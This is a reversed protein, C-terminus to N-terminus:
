PAGTLTCSGSLNDGGATVVRLATIANTDGVWAGTGTVSGYNAGSKFYSGAVRMVKNNPAAPALNGIDVSFSGPNGNTDDWSDSGIQLSTLTASSLVVPTGSSVILEQVDYHAGTEWVFSGGVGEGVQIGVTEVSHPNIDHCALRWSHYSATDLGSAPAFVLSSAPASIPNSVTSIFGADSTTNPSVINLAQTAGTFDNSRLTAVGTYGVQEGYGYKTTGSGTDYTKNGTVTTNKSAFAGDLLLSIGAQDLIGGDGSSGNQGINSATNGIIFNNNGFNGIGTGGINFAINGSITTFSAGNEIGGTATGNSDVGTPADHEINNSIVNNTDNVDEPTFIGTGFGYGSVDNGHLVSHSADFQIATGVQINDSVDAGSIFGTSQTLAIGQNDLRGTTMELYNKHIFINNYTFTSGAAVTVMLMRDVANIFQNNYVRLGTSNGSQSFFGLGIQFPSAPITPNNFDVTLDHFDLGNKNNWAMLTSTITCGPDYKITALGNGPGVFSASASATFYVGCPIRYTGPPVYYAASTTNSFAAIFAPSDDTVGDGKANYPSSKISIYPIVNPSTVGNISLTSFNGTCATTACIPVGDITNLLGIAGIGLNARALPVSAVDSLNNAKALVATFDTNLAVFSGIQSVSIKVDAGNQVGYLVELGTMAQATPLNLLTSDAFALTPTLLAVALAAHVSASKRLM